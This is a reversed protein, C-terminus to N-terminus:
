DTIRNEAYAQRIDAANAELWRRSQEDGRNAAIRADMLAQRSFTQDEAGSNPAAPSELTANALAARRELDAIQKDRIGNDNKYMDLADVAAQTDGQQAAEILRARYPKEQGWNAFEPSTAIERWDPHQDDILREAENARVQALENRLEQLESQTEERAARRIAEDPDNYLADVDVPIREAAAPENASPSTAQVELFTDIAKRQEGVLQGQRSYARELEMYSEAIEEPSKGQFREPIATTQQNERVQQNIAAEDIQANLEDTTNNSDVYKAKYEAYKGM